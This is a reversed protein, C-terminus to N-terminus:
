AENARIRAHAPSFILAEPEPYNTPVHDFSFPSEQLDSRRQDMLNHAICYAIAQKLYIRIVFLPPLGPRSSSWWDFVDRDSKSSNCKRCAWVANDGCDAGGRNTPVVHDVALNRTDGCYVCEQPMQMRIRQDRMLSRPSMTGKILGAYLRARIMFHKRSYTSDRGHVAMEAMALNAYSWYLHEAVTAKLSTPM